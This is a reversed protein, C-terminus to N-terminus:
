DKVCRIPLLMSKPKYMRVSFLKNIKEEHSFVSSGHYIGEYVDKQTSSWFYAAFGFDQPEKQAIDDYYGCPYASFGLENIAANDELGNFLSYDTRSILKSCEGSGRKQSFVYWDNIGIGIYKELEIWEEDTPIHWGTPCATQADEWTYYNGTLLSDELSKSNQTNYDLNNLIWKKEGYSAIEYIKGDRPDTFFEINRTEFQYTKGNSKNDDYCISFNYETNRMLGYIYCFYNGTKTDYKCNIYRVKTKTNSFDGDIKLKVGYDNIDNENQLVVLASNHTINNISNLSLNPYLEKEKCSCILLILLFSVILKNSM